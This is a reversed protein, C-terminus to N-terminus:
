NVKEVLEVRRNKARGEPTRNSAVPALPGLGKPILRKGSITHQNTLIDVVAAARRNSLDMNYDLSGDSDTHGVVYLNLGPNNNLLKAIQEIAADSEKKVVAKGSDFYIGYIAMHGSQIIGKAMADADAVVDQAMVAKEVITLVYRDGDDNGPDVKVWTEMGNKSIKFVYYYSGKLMAEAGIDNFANLYNKLIQIKGPPTAGPQIRYDIVYKRGEVRVKGDETKFNEYDFENKEYGAIYFDPMRTVLPHDKSGNLDSTKASVASSFAIIIIMWFLIFPHLRPSYNM